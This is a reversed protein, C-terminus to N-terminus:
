SPAAHSVFRYQGNTAPVAGHVSETFQGQLLPFVTYVRSLMLVAHMVALTPGRQTGVFQVAGPQASQVLAHGNFQEPLPAHSRSVPTHVHVAGCVPLPQSSVLQGLSQEFLPTHLVALPTHAHERPQVPVLQLVRTDVEVAWITNEM